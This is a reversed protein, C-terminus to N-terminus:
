GRRNHDLRYNLPITLAISEKGEPLPPFSIRRMLDIAEDDLIDSGSSQMVQQATITGDGAVNVRVKVTGEIGEDILQTPYGQNRALTRQVARQWDKWNDTAADVEVAADMATMTEDMQFRLPIKFIYTDKGDPLTPLPNIRGLLSLVEADLIEHGSSRNIAFGIISGTKAVTVQVKVTGELKQDVAQRPYRQKAAFQDYVKEGWSQFDDDAALTPVSALVTMATMAIFAKTRGLIM